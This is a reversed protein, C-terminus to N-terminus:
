VIRLKINWKVSWVKMNHNSMFKWLLSRLLWIIVNIVNLHKINLHQKFTDTLFKRQHLMVIAFTVDDVDDTEDDIDDGTEDVDDTEDDVDVETEDDVDDETEDDDDTEDDNDDDDDEDDAEDDNDADIGGVVDSAHIDNDIYSVTWHETYKLIEENKM